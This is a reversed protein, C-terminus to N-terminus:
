QWQKYTATLKTSSALRCSSTQDPKLQAKRSLDATSKAQLLLNELLYLVHLLSTKSTKIKTHHWWPQSEWTIIDWLSILCKTHYHGKFLLYPPCPSTYLTFIHPVHAAAPSRVATHQSAIARLLATYGGSGSSALVLKQPCSFWTINDLMQLLYKNTTPRPVTYLELHKCFSCPIFISALVLLSFDM